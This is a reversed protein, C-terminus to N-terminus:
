AGEKPVTLQFLDLFTANTIKPLFHNKTLKDVAMNPYISTNDPLFNFDIM